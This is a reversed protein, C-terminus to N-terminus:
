TCATRELAGTPGMAVLGALRWQTKKMDSLKRLVLHHYFGPVFVLQDGPVAEGAKLVGMEGARADFSYVLTTDHGRNEMSFMARRFMVRLSELHNIAYHISPFSLALVFAFWVMRVRGDGTGM